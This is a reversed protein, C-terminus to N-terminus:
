VNSSSKEMCENLFGKYRGIIREIAFEKEVFSKINGKLKQYNCDHEAVVAKMVDILSEKSKNKFVFGTSGNIVFQKFSEIDSVIVPKNYQYALTLVASQAGDQYPLVMYHCSSVIDPIDRNPIIEIRKKIGEPFTILSEYTEWNDCNGAIYLEINQIGSNHLEQFANILLDLRKYERIYGFFLFRITGNVPTIDSPGYDELTLPAYYHSKNPVMDKIVSLQYNSFVHFNKIRKYVYNHYLRMLRENSAGKPTSVNHAGYIVKNPDILLFFIPFFYPLGHFSIYIIDADSQRIKNLLNFYQFIIRPDKQRYKLNYEKPKFTELVLGDSKRKTNLTNILIWEIEYETSLEPVVFADACLFYDPTIWCIKKKRKPLKNM